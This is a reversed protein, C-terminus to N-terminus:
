RRVAGGPAFSDRGQAWTSTRDARTWGLRKALLAIFETASASAISQTIGALALTRVRGRRCRSICDHRENRIVARSASITTRSVQASQQSLFLHKQRRPPKRSLSIGSLEPSRCV